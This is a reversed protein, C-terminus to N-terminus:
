GEREHHVLDPVLPGLGGRAVARDDIQLEGASRNTTPGEAEAARVRFAHIETHEATLAQRREIVIMAVASATFWATTGLGLLGIRGVWSVVLYHSM